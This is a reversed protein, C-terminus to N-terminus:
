VTLHEVSAQGSYISARLDNPDPNNWNNAYQQAEAIDTFATILHKGDDDTVTVVFLTM